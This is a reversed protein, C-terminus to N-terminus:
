LNFSITYLVLSFNFMLTISFFMENLTIKILSKKKAQNILMLPFFLRMYIYLMVLSSLILITPIIFENNSVLQNVTIWKPLFGIFPPIGGISMFNVMLVLNTLFETNNLQNIFNINLAKMMSTAIITLISYTSFYITLTSLSMMSSIMWALHNISSYSMIKRMSTHNLNMLSSVIASSVIFILMITSSPQNNLLIMMPSVKQTTLLISCNLWSLGEMVEPFWFHLPAAGMKLMLMSNLISTMLNSTSISYMLPNIMIMILSFLIIVSALAQTIFYKMSAETSMSNHPALFLPIASLLNIELGMWMSFWSYSSIAMLTGMILTNSFLIKYSKMM